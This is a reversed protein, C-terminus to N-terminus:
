YKETVSFRLVCSQIIFLRKSNGLAHRVKLVTLLRDLVVDKHKFTSLIRKYHGSDIIHVPNTLIVHPLTM